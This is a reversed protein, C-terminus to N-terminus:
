VSARHYQKHTVHESHDTESAAAREYNMTQTITQETNITLRTFVLQVSQVYGSWPFDLEGKTCYLRCRAKRGGDVIIYM